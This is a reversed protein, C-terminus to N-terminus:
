WAAPDPQARDHRDAQRFYVRCIRRRAAPRYPHVHAHDDGDDPLGRCLVARCSGYRSELHCLALRSPVLVRRRDAAEGEAGPRVGRVFRLCPDGGQTCAGEACRARAGHGARQHGDYRAARRLQHAPLEPRRPPLRLGAQGQRRCRPDVHHRAPRRVALLGSRARQHSPRHPRPQGDPQALSVHRRHGLRDERAPFRGLTLRGANRHHRHDFSASAGNGTGTSAGCGPSDAPRFIGTYGAFTPARM